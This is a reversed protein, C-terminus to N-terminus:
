PTSLLLADSLTVAVPLVADIELAKMYGLVLLLNSVETSAFRGGIQADTLGIRQKLKAEVQHRTYPRDGRGLQNRLSFLHVGGIGLVVAQGQRLRDVIAEPVAEALTRALALAQRADTEDIPNPSDGQAPDRGQISEIVRNRFTQSAHEGVYVLHDDDAASRAVLQMSGSGIDWVVAQRPDVGVAAM